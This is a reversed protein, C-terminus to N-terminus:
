GRGGNSIAEAWSFTLGIRRSAGRTCHFSVLVDQPVEILRAACRYRRYPTVCRRSRSSAACLIGEGVFSYMFRVANPCTVNNTAIVQVRTKELRTWCGHTDSAFAAPAAALTALTALATVLIRM